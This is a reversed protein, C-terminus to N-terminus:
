LEPEKSDIFFKPEADSDKDYSSAYEEIWAKEGGFEKIWDKTTESMYLCQTDGLLVDTIAETIADEYMEDYDTILDGEDSYVRCCPTDSCYYRYGPIALQLNYRESEGAEYKTYATLLDGDYENLKKLKGFYKDWKDSFSKFNSTDGRLYADLVDEFLDGPALTQGAYTAYEDVYLKGDLIVRADEFDLNYEGQLNKEIALGYIRFEGHKRGTKEEFDVSFSTYRM